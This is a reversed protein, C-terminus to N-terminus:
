PHLALLELVLEVQELCADIFLIFFHGVVEALHVLVVEALHVLIHDKKTFSRVVQMVLHRGIICVHLPAHIAELAGDVVQSASMSM